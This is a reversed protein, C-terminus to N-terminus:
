GAQDAFLFKSLRSKNKAKHGDPWKDLYARFEMLEAEWEELLEAIETQQEDTLDKILLTPCDLESCDINWRDRMLAVLDLDPPLVSFNLRDSSEVWESTTSVSYAYDVLAM